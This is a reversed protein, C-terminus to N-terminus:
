GHAPLESGSPEVSSREPRTPSSSRFPALIRGVLSPKRQEAGSAGQVIDTALERIQSAYRSSGNLVLPRGTSIAQIVTKYDNGLTAYADIGLTDELDKLGVLGKPHYRNVVLRLRDADGGTVGDLTPLCRKLNRISPVDLNTVLFIRDAAKLTTLAPPALSKSTDVVVYDYHSRLFRLIGGIQEGTVEEGIEPEFPASLVHVGSEHSEIYSALLDADMRHFNRVLDVLHFRPQVGLLSAIEGMELDLDVLLTKKGTTRHLEIGVNTAVTTSGAGGKASFFALVRGQHAEEEQAADAWGRKQLVRGLAEYIAKPDLPRPLYEVVGARMAELLLASDLEPGVGLLATRPCKAGLAGAVKLAGRPDQALDLIVVHPEASRVYELEDIELDATARPVEFVIRVPRKAGDVAELVVPKLGGDGSVIGIRLQKSTM